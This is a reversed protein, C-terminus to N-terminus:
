FCQVTFHGTFLFSLTYKYNLLLHIAYQACWLQSDCQSVTETHCKWIQKSLTLPRSGTQDSVMGKEFSNYAPVSQLSFPPMRKHMMTARLHTHIYPGDVQLFSCYFETLELQRLKQRATMTTHALSGLFRTTLHNKITSSELVALHHLVTLSYTDGTQLAVVPHNKVGCRQLSVFQTMEAFVYRQFNM